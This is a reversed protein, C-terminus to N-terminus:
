RRENASSAKDEIVIWEDWRCRENGIRLGAYPARERRHAIGADRTSRRASCDSCTGGNTCRGGVGWPAILRYISVTADIPM